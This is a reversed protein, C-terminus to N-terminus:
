HNLAANLAHSAATDLAHAIKRMGDITQATPPIETTEGAFQGRSPTVTIVGSLPVVQAITTTHNRIIVTNIRDTHMECKTGTAAEITEVIVEAVEESTITINM